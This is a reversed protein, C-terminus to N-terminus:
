RVHNLRIFFLAEYRGNLGTRKEPKNSEKWENIIFHWIGIKFNLQWMESTLNKKRINLKKSVDVKLVPAEKNCMLQLEEAVYKKIWRFINQLKNKFHKSFRIQDKRFESSEFSFYDTKLLLCKKGQNDLTSIRTTYVFVPNM